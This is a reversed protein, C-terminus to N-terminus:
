VGDKPANRVRALRERAAALNEPSLTRKRWPRFAPGARDLAILLNNEHLSAELEGNRELVRAGHRRLLPAIRGPQALQAFVRWTLNGAYWAHTGLLNAPSAARKRPGLPLVLEGDPLTTFRLRHSAAFARVHDNDDTFHEPM